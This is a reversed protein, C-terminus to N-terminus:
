SRLMSEPLVEWAAEFGDLAQRVTPHELMERFLGTFIIAGTSGANLASEFDAVTRISAPVLETACGLRAFLASSERCLAVPDGGADRMRAYYPCLFRAGAAAAAAAQSLSAVATILVPLDAALVAAAALGDATAPLKPILLPDLLQIAEAQKLFAGRDPGRLQLYLPLGTERVLRVATQEPVIGDAKFWGAVVDPNTVIAQPLGTACAALLEDAPGAIWLRPVPSPLLLDSIM